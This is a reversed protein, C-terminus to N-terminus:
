GAPDELQILWSLTRSEVLGTMKLPKSFLPPGTGALQCFSSRQDVSEISYQLGFWM